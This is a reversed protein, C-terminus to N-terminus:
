SQDHGPVRPSGPTGGCGRALASLSGPVDAVKDVDWELSALHLSDFRLAPHAQLMRDRAALITDHSPMDPHQYMYYQPHERFYDRDGRVTMKELPLWCNLPEAQHGLLVIHHSALHAIVPEIRADDPMVYHGDADRLTM